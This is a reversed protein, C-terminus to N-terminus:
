EVEPPYWDLVTLLSMMEDSPVIVETDELSWNTVGGPENLVQGTKVLEDYADKPISM